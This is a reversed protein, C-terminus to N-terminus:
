RVYATTVVRRSYDPIWLIATPSHNTPNTNTSVLAQLISCQRSASRRSSATLPSLATCSQCIQSSMHLLDGALPQSHSNKTNITTTSLHLQSAFPRFLSSTTASALLNSGVKGICRYSYLYGLSSWAPSLDADCEIQKAEATRKAM